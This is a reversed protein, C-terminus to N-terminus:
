GEDAIRVRWGDDTRVLDYPQDQSLDSGDARTLETHVIATARDGEVEIEGVDTSLDSVQSERLEQAREFSAECGGGEVEAEEGEAEEAESEGAESEGGPRDPEQVVYIDECATRADGAEQAAFLDELTSAIEARDDDASDGGGCGAALFAVVGLVVAAIWRV